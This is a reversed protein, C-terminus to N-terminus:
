RKVTAWGSFAHAMRRAITTVPRHLQAGTSARVQMGGASLPDVDTGRRRQPIQLSGPVPQPPLPLGHNQGIGKVEGGLGSEGRGPPLKERTAEKRRPEGRGNHAAVPLDGHSAQQQLTEVRTGEHADVRRDADGLEDIFRLAHGKREHGKVSM